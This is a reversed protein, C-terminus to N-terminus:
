EHQSVGVGVLHLVQHFPKEDAALLEDHHHALDEFPVDILVMIANLERVVLGVILDARLLPSYTSTDILCTSHRTPLTAIVGLRVTCEIPLM